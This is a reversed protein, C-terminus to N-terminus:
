TEPCCDATRREERAPRMSKLDLLPRVPAACALVSAMPAMCRRSVAVPVIRSSTTRPSLSGTGHGASHKGGTDIAEQPQMQACQTLAAFWRHDTDPYM